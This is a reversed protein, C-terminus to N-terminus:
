RSQDEELLHRFRQAGSRSLVVGEALPQPVLHVPRDLVAVRFPRQELKKRSSQVDVVGVDDGHPVRFGADCPPCCGCCCDREDVGTIAAVLYTLLGPIMLFIGVLIGIGVGRPVSRRTFRWFESHLIRQGFPKVWRSRALQERSPMHRALWRGLMNDAM